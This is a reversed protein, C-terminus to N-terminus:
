STSVDSGISTSNDAPGVRRLSGIAVVTNDIKINMNAERWTNGELLMLAPIQVLVKLMTFQDLFPPSSRPPNNPDKVRLHTHYLATNVDFNQITEGGPIPAAQVIATFISMFVDSLSLQQGFLNINYELNGDIFQRSLATDIPTATSDSLTLADATTLLPTELGGTANNGPSHHPHVKDSFRVRGVIAGQWRLTFVRSRYDEQELMYAIARYLGWIAYKRHILSQQKSGDITLSFHPHDYSCPPQRGNFDQTAIQGLAILTQLLCSEPPLDPGPFRSVTVTFAPPVPQSLTTNWITSQIDSSNLSSLPLTLVSPVAAGQSTWLSLFFVGHKLIARMIYSCDVPSKLPPRM